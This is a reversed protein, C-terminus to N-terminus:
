RFKWPGFPRNFREFYILLEKVREDTLYGKEVFYQGIKRQKVRQHYLITNAQFRTLFNQRVAAEGIRELPRREAMIWEIEEISLKFWRRAMEGFRPRQRRQWVIAEILTKWPVLGSYYLFEGFFLPRRPLSGRYYRVEPDNGQSPRIVSEPRRRKEEPPRSRFHSDRKEIFSMIQQYARNAEIFAETYKKKLEEDPTTVRDPHVLLARKRYASRVEPLQLYRFFHPSFVDPEFLIRFARILNSDSTNM